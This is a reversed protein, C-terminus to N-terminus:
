LFTLSRSIRGMFVRSASLVVVEKTERVLGCSDIRSSSTVDSFAGVDGDSNVYRFERAEGGGGGGGRSLDVVYTGGVFDVMFVRLPEFEVACTSATLFLPM